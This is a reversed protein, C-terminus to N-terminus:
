DRYSPNSESLKETTKKKHKKAAIGAEKCQLLLMESM